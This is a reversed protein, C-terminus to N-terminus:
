LVFLLWILTPLSIQKSYIDNQSFEWPCVHSYYPFSVYIFWWLSRVTNFDLHCCACAESHGMEGEVWCPATVTAVCPLRAMWLLERLGTNFSNRQSLWMSVPMCHRPPIVGIIQRRDAEPWVSWACFIVTILLWMKANLIEGFLPLIEGFLPVCDSAEPMHFCYTLCSTELSWLGQRLLWYLAPEGSCLVKRQTCPRFLKLRALSDSM